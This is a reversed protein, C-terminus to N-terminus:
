VSGIRLVTILDEQIERPLDLNRIKAVTKEVSYPFQKLSFSGDQWVAYCADARGTKPQGLSGPNVVAQRGINNVFPTHTHGVLLVDADLSELEKAWQPSDAPCYGYLPNSPVAHCLAFRVGEREVQSTLPLRRLFQKEDASLAALSIKRTAEAMAHYRPACRPDEDYGVAHDHNGRMVVAANKRIFEVTERPQPGYNVLDGLVWLEDYSEPLASLADFNSHVDSVIVIKM